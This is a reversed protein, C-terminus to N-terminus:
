FNQLHAENESIEFRPMEDLRNNITKVLNEVSSFVRYLMVKEDMENNKFFDKITEIEQNFGKNYM